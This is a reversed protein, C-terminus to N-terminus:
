YPGKLFWMLMFVFNLVSRKLVEVVFQSTFDTATHVACSFCEGVIYFVFNSSDRFRKPEGGPISGPDRLNVAM